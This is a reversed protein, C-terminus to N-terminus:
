GLKWGFAVACPSFRAKMTGWSPLVAVSYIGSYSLLVLAAVMDRWSLSPVLSVVAREMELGIHIACRRAIGVVDHAVVDIAVGDVHLLSLQFHLGSDHWPIKHRGGNPPSRLCCGSVM